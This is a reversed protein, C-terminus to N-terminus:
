SIKKKLSKATKKLADECDPCNSAETCHEKEVIKEVEHVFATRIDGLAATMAMSVATIDMKKAALGERIEAKTKEVIENIENTEM